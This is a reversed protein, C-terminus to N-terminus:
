GAQDGPASTGLLRNSAGDINYNRTWGTAAAGSDHIMRLINGVADYGYSETYTRVAQADNVHPLNLLPVDNQDRQVDALGGAQERGTAQMLRYLADYVYAMKPLVVDNDFFAKQQASDKIETINGVPDYTYALNQLVAGDSARTTKLQTMRFTQPDYAYLTTTAAQGYAISERQGKADYGIHDVFTTAAKAGRLQVLVRELLSAESYAPLVVSQDPTTLSVPRNLADYATAAAFVEAELMAEAAAAIVAPDALAALASWDAQARYEKALRRESGLLNGKFDYATSTMVGAGDFHQYVKGRHNASVAGAGLAEGYVTREVLMEAGSAPQVHLHTARRAADYVARQTFGRGDWARLPKGAVDGLMWREGADCSKQHLKRGGMGFVNRQAENGRADIVALPNGEVDFTVPLYFQGPAFMQRGSPVWWADDGDVKVYGGEDLILDTARGGLASALLAPAPKDEAPKSPAGAFGGPPGRKADDDGYRNAMATWRTALDRVIRCSSALSPARSSSGGWSRSM